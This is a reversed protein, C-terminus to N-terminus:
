ARYLASTAALAAEVMAQLVPQIRRAKADDYAYPAEEKMYLCQCKELQVAHVHEAPRGYQRTIYGGKFRGNVVSTVGQAGACAAAVASSISAHAAASNATGINLDPLRGEFLWPIQSRISHADWLLAFGHAAKLRALEGQLAQHYPQWYQERRQAREAADPAAGDQYLPDGTFFRTPCLETNSAGPYMPADDPPRNLDIVYRSFEPRLTSAGLSGAFAYLRDMHWDTDEVDLARPVYRHRLGSPIRTGMHPMSVLLPVSGRDLQFTM